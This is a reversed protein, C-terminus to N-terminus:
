AEFIGSNSLKTIDMRESTISQGCKFLFNQNKPSCKGARENSSLKEILHDAITELTLNLLEPDSVCIESLLPSLACDSNFRSNTIEAPNSELTPGNVTGLLRLIESIGEQDLTEPYQTEPQGFINGM